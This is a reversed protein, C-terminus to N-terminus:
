DDAFPNEEPDTMGVKAAAEISSLIAQETEYLALHAGKASRYRAKAQKFETEAKTLKDFAEWKNRQVIELPTM